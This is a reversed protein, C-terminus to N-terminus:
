AQARALIFKFMGMNDLDEVQEIQLGAIRINEITRRNINAGNLRVIIPALADMMKGIIPRDIRVHELLLIQGGPRIVRGIERLGQVPDPASCFVFTAVVSDFSASPFELLQVDGLRLDADWDLSMARQRAIALMEPTLDIATIEANVPWFEINKGSGVGVELVEPGRVSQWLKQRWPRFRGEMLSEIKDYLPAIRQYRTRTLATADNDLYKTSPDLVTSNARM